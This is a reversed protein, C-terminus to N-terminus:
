RALSVGLNTPEILGRGLDTFCYSRHFGCFFVPVFGLDIADGALNRQESRLWIGVFASSWKALASSIARFCFAFDQSSRAAILM